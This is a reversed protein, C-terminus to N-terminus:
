GHEVYWHSGNAISRLSEYDKTFGRREMDRLVEVALPNEQLETWQTEVILEPSLVKASEMLNPGKIGLKRAAVGYRQWWVKRSVSLTTTVKEHPISLAERLLEQKGQTCNLLASAIKRSIM